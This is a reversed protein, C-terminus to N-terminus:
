YSVSYCPISIRYWVISDGEGLCVFLCYIVACHWFMYRKQKFLSIMDVNKPKIFRCHSGICVCVCVCIYVYVGVCM